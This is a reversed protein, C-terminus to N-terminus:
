DAIGLIQKVQAKYKEPVDNITIKGLRIQIALFQAM